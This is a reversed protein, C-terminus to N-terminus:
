CLLLYECLCLPEDPGEVRGHLTFPSANVPRKREAGREREREREKGRGRRGERKRDWEMEREWVREQMRERM